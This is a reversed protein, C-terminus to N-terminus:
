MCTVLFVHKLCECGSVPVNLLTYIYAHLYVIYVSIYQVHMYMYLYIYVNMRVCLCVFTVRACMVCVHVSYLTCVYVCVWVCMVCVCVCVSVNPLNNYFDINAACLYRGLLTAHTTFITAVRSHHLRLLLLGVGTLWEHFQAM